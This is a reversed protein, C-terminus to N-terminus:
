DRHDRTKLQKELDRDAARKAEVVRKDYLKKGKCLGIELKNKANKLHRSQKNQNGQRDTASYRAM